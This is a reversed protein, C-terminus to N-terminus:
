LDNFWKRVMEFRELETPIDAQVSLLFNAKRIRPTYLRELALALKEYTLHAGHFIDSPFAGGLIIIDEGLRDLADEFPTDGFPPPTLGNIGDLGTKGIVGLLAKLHGCMHIVAKKGHKHIIDVYDRIQPFSYKAYVAPSTLRSSTNEMPIIVQNRSVRATIEYEELRRTHMVELLKEMERPYDDLLYYFALMGMDNELLEQVPSPQPRDACIGTDGLAQEVRAYSEAAGAQEEYRLSEWIKTFIRVDEISQVPYKTPHDRSESVLEGWPSIIKHRSTGDPLTTQEVQLQPTVQKCPPTLPQLEPLGGLENLFLLDCGILRYFDLYEMERIEQSMLSRTSPDITTTWAPRDIPQKNLINTLRQKGTMVKTKQCM